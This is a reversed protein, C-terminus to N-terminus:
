TKIGQQFTITNWTRSETLCVMERTVAVQTLLSLCVPTQLLPKHPLAYCFECKYGLNEVKGKVRKKKGEKRKEEQLEQVVGQYQKKLRRDTKALYIAKRQSRWTNYYLIVPILSM